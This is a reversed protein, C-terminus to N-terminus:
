EITTKGVDLNFQKSLQSVAENGYTHFDAESKSLKEPLFVEFVKLEGEPFYSHGNIIVNGM